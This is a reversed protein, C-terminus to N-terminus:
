HGRKCRKDLLARVGTGSEEEMKRFFVKAVTMVSVTGSRLSVTVMHWKGDPEDVLRTACLFGRGALKMELIAMAKPSTLGAALAEEKRRLALLEYYVENCTAADCLDEYLHFYIQGNSESLCETHLSGEFQRTIAESMLAETYHKAIDKLSVRSMAHLLNGEMKAFDAEITKLAKANALVARELVEKLMFRM